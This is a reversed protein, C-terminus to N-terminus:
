RVADYQGSEQRNWHLLAINQLLPQTLLLMCVSLPQVLYEPPYELRECKFVIGASLAPIVDNETCVAVAPM